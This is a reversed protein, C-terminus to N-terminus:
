TDNLQSSGKKYPVFFVKKNGWYIIWVLAAYSVLAPILWEFDREYMLITFLLSIVAIFICFAQRYKTDTDVTFKERCNQCISYNKFVGPHRLERICIEIDCHPCTKMSLTGLARFM